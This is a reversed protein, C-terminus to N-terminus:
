KAEKEKKQIYEIYRKEDRSFENESFKPDPKYWTFQSFYSKLDDSKFVYGHRAYVMNRLYRYQDKPLNWYRPFENDTKLFMLPFTKLCEEAPVTEKIEGSSVGKYLEGNVGNKKLAYWGDEKSYLWLAVGDTSFFNWDLNVEYEKGDLLLKDGHIEMKKSDKYFSLLINEVYEFYEDYGYGRESLKDSIKHYSNGKDDICFTGASNIVFRYDEFEKATIAYGDHFHADSHCVNKALFLVDHHNPYGMPYAGYIDKERKLHNEYDVPIYTGIYKEDVDPLDRDGATLSSLSVALALISFFAKKFKM